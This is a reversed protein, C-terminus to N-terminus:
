IERLKEGRSLPSFYSLSRWVSLGMLSKAGSPSDEGTLNPVKYLLYFMQSYM